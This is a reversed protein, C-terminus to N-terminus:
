GELRGCTGAQPRKAKEPIDACLEGEKKRCFKLLYNNVNAMVANM